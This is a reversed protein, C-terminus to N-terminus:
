GLSRHFIDGNVHPKGSIPIGWFSPKNINTEHFIGSFSRLFHIAGGLFIAPLIRISCKTTGLTVSLHDQCLHPTQLIQM